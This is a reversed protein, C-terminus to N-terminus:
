PSKKNNATKIAFSELLAAEIQAMTDDDMHGIRKGLRSKDITRVQELLVISGPYLGCNDNSVSVHTPLPPKNRSSTVAAIVTSSYHNGIDNQLIVVPRYGGQESGNGWGLHAM